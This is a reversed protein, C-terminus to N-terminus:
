PLQYSINSAASVLTSASASPRFRCPVDLQNWVLAGTQPQHRLRPAQFDSRKHSNLRAIERGQCCSRWGVHGQENNTQYAKAETERGISNQTPKRSAGM